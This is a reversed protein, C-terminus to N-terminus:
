IFDAGLSSRYNTHTMAVKGHEPYRCAGSPCRLPRINWSLDFYMPDVDGGKKIQSIDTSEVPNSHPREMGAGVRRWHYASEVQRAVRGLSQSTGLDKRWYM